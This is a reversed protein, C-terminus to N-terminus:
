THPKTSTSKIGRMGPQGERCTVTALLGVGMYLLLSLM